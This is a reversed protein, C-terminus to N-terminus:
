NLNQKFEHQCFFNFAIIYINDLVCNTDHQVFHVKLDSARLPFALMECLTRTFNTGVLSIYVQKCNIQSHLRVLHYVYLGLALDRPAESQRSSVIRRYGKFAILFLPFLPSFPLFISFIKEEKNDISYMFTTQLVKCFKANRRPTLFVHIVKAADISSPGNATRM